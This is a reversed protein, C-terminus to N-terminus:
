TGFFIESFELAGGASLTAPQEHSAVGDFAVTLVITAPELGHNTVRVLFRHTQDIRYEQDFRPRVLATDAHVIETSTGGTELNGTRVFDTSTVLELHEPATGTIEIRATAPLDQDDDLVNCTVLMGSALFVAVPLLNAGLGLLAHHFGANCRSRPPAPSALRKSPPIAAGNARFAVGLSATWGPHMAARICCPSRGRAALPTGARM